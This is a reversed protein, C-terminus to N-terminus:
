PFMHMVVNSVRCDARELAQLLVTRGALGGPVNASLRANGFGDAVATGAIQVNRINIVVGPCGPVSMSGSSFGYGFHIRNGPAAGNVVLTNRAGASGPDPAQLTLGGSILYCKGARFGNSPNYAATVFFDLRGDEDVDGIGHADFGFGEGATTSTFSRIVAGDAGSIIDAKGANFAGEDNVWGCILLDARGDFNVDGCGRGIGYGEGAAAGPLTLLRSGDVGSFVYAKGTGTGHTNDSFDAVYLDGVLDGDTDGVGAVFFQGFGVATSDPIMEFRRTQEKVSFLYARGRNSPGAAPAGVILDDFGDGTVDGADAASNGFRDGADAGDITWLVTAGDIGSIIYVRGADAGGADHGDAGVALDDHGDGNIDGVGCVTSGFRDGASGIRISHILHGDAGSYVYARGIGGAAPAGSIVDNTGDNDVDGADRAAIGNQDGAVGDWRFMEAGSRGSYVYVRGAGAGGASNFPATVIVEDAGDGDVDLLPASVWGFQDNAAEGVFQHILRTSEVFQALTPRCPAAAVMLGIAPVLFLRM